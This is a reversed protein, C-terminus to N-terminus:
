WCYPFSPYSVISHAALWGHDVPLTPVMPSEYGPATCHSAATSDGGWKFAITGAIVNADGVCKQYVPATHSLEQILQIQCLM